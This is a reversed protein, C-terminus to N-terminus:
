AVLTALASVLVIACGSVWVPLFWLSGGAHSSILWRPRGRRLIRVTGDLGVWVAGLIMLAQPDSLRFFFHSMGGVLGGVVAIGIGWGNGRLM